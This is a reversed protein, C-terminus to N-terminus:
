KKEEEKPQDITSMAENIKFELYEVAKNGLRQGTESTVANYVVSTGVVVAVTKTSPFFSKLFFLVVIVPIVIKQFLKFVKKGNEWIDKGNNINDDSSFAAYGILIVISGFIWMFMMFGFASSLSDQIIDAQMMLYIYFMNM